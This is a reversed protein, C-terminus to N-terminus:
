ASRPSRSRARSAQLLASSIAGSWTPGSRPTPRGGRGAPRGRPPPTPGRSPAARAVRRRPPAGRASVTRARRPAAPPRRRSPRRARAATGAGAARREPRRWAGAPRGRSRLRSPRCGAGRDLAPQHEGAAEGVRLAFSADSSAAAASAPTEPSAARVASYRPRPGHRAITASASVALRTTAGTPSPASSSTRRSRLMGTPRASRNASRARPIASRTAARPLACSRAAAAPGRGSRARARCARSSTPRPRPRSGPPAAGSPPRSAALRHRRQRGRQGPLHAARRRGRAGAPHAEHLHLRGPPVSSTAGAACSRRTTASASLRTFMPRARSSIIRAASAASAHARRRDDLRPGLRRQDAVDALRARPQHDHHRRRALHQRLVAERPRHVQHRGGREARRDHGGRPASACCSPSRVNPASNWAPTCARCGGRATRWAARRRQDHERHEPALRRDPQHLQEVLLERRRQLLAAGARAPGRAPGRASKSASRFRLRM